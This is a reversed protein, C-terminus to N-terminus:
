GKTSPRIFTLSNSSVCIVYKLDSHQWLLRDSINTQAFELNCTKMSEVVVMM